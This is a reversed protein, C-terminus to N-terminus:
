LQLKCIYIDLKSKSPKDIYPRRPIESLYFLNSRKNIIEKYLHFEGKYM